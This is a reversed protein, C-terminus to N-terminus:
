PAVGGKDTHHAYKKFFAAEVWAVLGFFLIGAVSAAIIAAFLKPTDINYSSILIVFGIGRPAGTLEGVIAGVVALASSIKLASFIYPLANPIRLKLLIQMPSASLSRMLELAEADVAKLGITANVVLPFFSIIAAMVVKGGVGYGFWLVLLPAVAIVPVSKLAIAYHYLSRELWASHSFGVAVALSLANALLFGLFAELLTLGTDTMLIGFESFIVGAVRTPAPVLYEEISLVRCLVEWLVVVALLVLAPPFWAGVLKRLGHGIKKKRGHIAAQLLLGVEGPSVPKAVVQVTGITGRARKTGIKEALLVSPEFGNPSLVICPLHRHSDRLGELLSRGNERDSNAGSVAIDIVVADFSPGEDLAAQAEDLTAVTTVEIEDSLHRILPQAERLDEHCLIIRDKPASM